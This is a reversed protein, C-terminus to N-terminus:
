LITGFYDWKLNFDNLNKYDTLVDTNVGVESNIVKNNFNGIFTM